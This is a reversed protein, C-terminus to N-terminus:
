AGAERNLRGAEALAEDRTALLRGIQRGDTRIDYVFWRWTGRVFRCGIRYPEREATLPESM